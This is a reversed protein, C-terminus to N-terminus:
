VGRFKISIVLSAAAVALACLTGLVVAPILKHEAIGPYKYLVIASLAGALFSGIIFPIYSRYAPFMPVFWCYIMSIAAVLIINILVIKM